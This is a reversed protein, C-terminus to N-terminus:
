VLDDCEGYKQLLIINQSILPPSGEGIGIEVVVCMCWKETDGLGAGDRLWPMGGDQRLSHIVGCVVPLLM